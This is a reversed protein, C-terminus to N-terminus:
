TRPRARRRVSFRPCSTGWPSCCWMRPSCTWNAAQRYARVCCHLRPPSSFSSPAPVPPSPFLAGAPVSCCAVPMRMFATVTVCMRYAKGRMGWGGRVRCVCAGSTPVSNAGPSAPAPAKPSSAPAEGGVRARKAAAWQMFDQLRRDFAAAGAGLAEGGGGSGSGSGDMDVDGGSDGVAGDTAGALETAAGGASGIVQAPSWDLRLVVAADLHSRHRLPRACTSTQQFERALGGLKGLVRFAEQGNTFPLPKVLSYLAALLPQLVPNPGATMLPLLFSAHLNDLWQDVYKLSRPNPSPSSSPPVLPHTPETPM